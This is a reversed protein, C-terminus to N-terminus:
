HGHSHDHGGREPSEPAAEAADKDLLAVLEERTVAGDKDADARKVMAKMRAPLEDATIKGDKNADFSEFTRDATEGAPEGRQPRPPRLEEASLKGDGNKDLTGLAAAANAIEEASLEGDGDADLAKMLPLRALFGARGGGPGRGGGEGEEHSHSFAAPAFGVLAIAGLVFLSSKM